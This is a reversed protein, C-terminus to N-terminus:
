EFTIKVRYDKRLNKIRVNGYQADARVTDIHVSALDGGLDLEMEKALAAFKEGWERITAMAIGWRNSIMTM